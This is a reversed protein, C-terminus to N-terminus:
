SFPLLRVSLFVYLRRQERSRAKGSFLRGIFPLKALFPIATKEKTDDVQLLGGLLVTQMDELVVTNHVKTTTISPYAASAAVSSLHSNEVMVELRVRKGDPLVYPKITIKVGVDKYQASRVTRIRGENVDETMSEIPISHGEHLTAQKGSCSIVQPALLTKIVQKNEAANLFVNLANVSLPGSFLFPLELGSGSPTMTKVALPLTTPAVGGVSGFPLAGGKYLLQANLGLKFLSQARALVIRAQIHVQPLPVNIAAVMEKFLRVQAATGQVLLRRSEDDIFFYQTRSQGKYQLICHQWMAELKLKLAETLMPWNLVITERAVAGFAGSLYLKARKLIIPRAAVHLASGYIFMGLPPSHGALLAHLVSGIREGQAHLLPVTGKVGDGVVLSLKAFAAIKELVRQLPEQKLFLHMSGQLSAHSFCDELFDEVARPAQAPQQAPEATPQILAFCPSGCAILLLFALRYIM